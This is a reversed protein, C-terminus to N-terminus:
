VPDKRTRSQQSGRQGQRAPKPVAPQSSCNEGCLNKAPTKLESDGQQERATRRASLSLGSDCDPPGLRSANPEEPTAHHFAQKALGVPRRLPYKNAIPALYDTRLSLYATARKVSVCSLDLGGPPQSSYVDVSKELGAGIPYYHIRSAASRRHLFVALQKGVIREKAFLSPQEARPYPINGLKQNLVANVRWLAVDIPSHRIIRGTM